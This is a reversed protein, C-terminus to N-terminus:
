GPCCTHGGRAPRAPGAMGVAAGADTGRGPNRLLGWQLASAAMAAACPSRGARGRGVTAPGSVGRGAGARRYLRGRRGAWVANRHRRAAALGRATRGPRGPGCRSLSFRADLFHAFQSYEFYGSHPRWCFSSATTPAGAAGHPAARLFRGLSSARWTFAPPPSTNMEIWGWSCARPHRRYRARSNMDLLFTIAWTMSPVNRAIAAALPPGCFACAHRLIRDWLM